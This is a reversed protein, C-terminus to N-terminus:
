QTVTRRRSVGVTRVTTKTMLKIKCCTEEDRAYRDNGDLHRQAAEVRMCALHRRLVSQQADESRAERSEALVQDGGMEPVIHDDRGIGFESASRPLVGAGACVVAGCRRM